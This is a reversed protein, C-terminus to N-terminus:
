LVGIISSYIRRYSLKDSSFCMYKNFESFNFKIESRAVKDVTNLIQDLHVQKGVCFGDRYYPFEINLSHYYHPMLLPIKSLSTELGITSPPSIVVTCYPLIKYLLSPPLILDSYRAFRKPFFVRDYYHPNIVFNYDKNPHFKKIVNNIFQGDFKEEQKTSPALLVTPKDEDFVINKKIEALNNDSKSSLSDFQLSGVIELNTKGMHNKINDKFFDGMLLIKDSNPEVNPRKLNRILPISKKLFRLSLNDIRELYSKVQDEIHPTTRHRKSYTLIESGVMDIELTVVKKNSIFKLVEREFGGFSTESVFIDPKFDQIISKLDDLSEVYIYDFNSYIESLQIGVISESPNDSYKGGLIVFVENGKDRLLDLLPIAYNPSNYKVQKDYFLIRM